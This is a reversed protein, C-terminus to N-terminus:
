HFLHKKGLLKLIIRKIKPIIRREEKKRNKFYEKEKEFDTIIEIKAKGGGWWWALETFTSRYTGLIHKTKSLLLMDILGEQTAKMDIRSLITKPFKVIKGPFEKEMMKEVEKSDTCLFFITKPKMKILENMRGIFKKNSSVRGPSYKKDVFDGRRIHVGVLEKLNNKKAFKDVKNKIYETPQIKDLYYIINKRIELPIKKFKFNMNNEKETLVEKGFNRFIENPLYRSKVTDSIIYKHPFDFLKKTSDGYFNIEEKNIKKLEEKNIETFNGKFLDSFKAGCTHNKVWYLYIKRNYLNALRLMYILCKIRNAIGGLNASIIIKKDKM